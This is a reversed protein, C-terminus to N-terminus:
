PFPSFNYYFHTNLVGSRKSNIQRYNENSCSWNETNANKKMTVTQKLSSLMNSLIDDYITWKCDRDSLGHLNIIHPSIFALASSMFSSTAMNISEGIIVYISSLILKADTIFMYTIKTNTFFILSIYM